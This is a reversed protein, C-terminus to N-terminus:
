MRADDQGRLYAAYVRSTKWDEPEDMMVGNMADNWGRGYAANIETESM